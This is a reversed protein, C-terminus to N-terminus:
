QKKVNAAASGRWGHRRARERMHIRARSGRLGRLLGSLWQPAPMLLFRPNAICGEGFGRLLRVRPPMRAVISMISDSSWTKPRYTTTHHRVMVTRDTSAARRCTTCSSVDVYVHVRKTDDRTFKKKMTRGFRTEFMKAMGNAECWVKYADYMARATVGPRRIPGFTPTPLSGCPDMEAFHEATSKLV